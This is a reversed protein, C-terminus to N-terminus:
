GLGVDPNMSHWTKLELLIYKRMVINVCHRQDSTIDKAEDWFWQLTESRSPREPGFYGGEDFDRCPGCDSKGYVVVIVNRRRVNFM